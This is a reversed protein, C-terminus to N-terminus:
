QQINQKSTEPLATSQVTQVAAAQQPPITVDVANPTPASDPQTVVPAAPVPQKTFWNTKVWNYIHKGEIWASYVFALWGAITVDDVIPITKYHHAALFTNVWVLIFVIFRAITKKDM